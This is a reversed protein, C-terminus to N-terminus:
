KNVQAVPFNSRAIDSRLVMLKAGDITTGLYVHDLHLQIMENIVDKLVNTAVSYLLPQMHLSTYIMQICERFFFHVRPGM